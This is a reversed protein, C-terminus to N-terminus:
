QRLPAGCYPCNSWDPQIQRGCSPCVPAAPNAPMNINKYPQAPGVPPLHPRPRTLNVVLLVVGIIVLSLLCLPFLGGIMAFLLGVPGFRPGFPMMGPM